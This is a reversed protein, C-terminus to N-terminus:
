KIARKIDCYLTFSGTQECGSLLQCIWILEKTSECMAVFEAETTSLSVCEQKHSAWSVPGGNLVLLYGSISRSTDVNSAYDADSYITLRNSESTGRDGRFIIGYNYTGRLYAMIRKVANWHAKKLNQCFQAVQGVAFAIDPRTCVMIFMLSGVAEQYLQQDACVTGGDNGESSLITYPDAPVVKSDCDEM